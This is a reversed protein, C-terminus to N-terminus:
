AKYVIHFLVEGQSIFAQKKRLSGSLKVVLPSSFPILPLNVPNKNKSTGVKLLIIRKEETLEGHSFKCKDGSFCELGTHYFKCPFDGHMYLCKEKKACCDMLYFKCLEM